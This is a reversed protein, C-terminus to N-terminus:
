PRACHGRAVSLGGTTVAQVAERDRGVLGIRSGNRDDCRSALEADGVEVVDRDAVDHEDVSREVVGVPRAEAVHEDVRQELVPGPLLGALDACAVGDVMHGNCRRHRCADVRGDLDDEVGTDGVATRSRDFVGGDRQADVPDSRGGTPTHAEAFREVGRRDVGDDRLDDGVRHDLM